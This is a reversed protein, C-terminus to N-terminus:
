KNEAEYEACYADLFKFLNNLDEENESLWAKYDFDDAGELYDDKIHMDDCFKYKIAVLEAYRQYSLHLGIYTFFDEYGTKGKKIEEVVNPVAYVGFKRLTLLKNEVDSESSLTEAIQEKAHKYFGCISEKSYIIRNNGIGQVYFPDIHLVSYIGHALYDKQYEEINEAESDNLATVIVPVADFGIPSIGTSAAYTMIYPEGVLMFYEDSYWDPESNLVEEYIETQRENFAKVTFTQKEITADPLSTQKSECGILVIFSILILCVFKIKTNVLM